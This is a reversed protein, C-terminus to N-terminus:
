RLSTRLGRNDWPTLIAKASGREKGRDNIVHYIMVRQVLLKLPFLTSHICVLGDGIRSCVHRRRHDM